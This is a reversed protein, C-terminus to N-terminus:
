PVAFLSTFEPKGGEGATLSASLASLSPLCIRSAVCLAAPILVFTTVEVSFQPVGTLYLGFTGLSM